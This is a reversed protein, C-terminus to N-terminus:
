LDFEIKFTTGENENSQISIKGGLSEVQTKVMFLGMGKGKSGVHFQKYLGFVQDGWKKLDIGLGNDKFILELKNEIRRSSIEIVCQISPQRYKVSNIILNYFISHMYAKLTLFENIESFDGKVEIDDKDVLNEVTIKIVALLESFIITEKTNGIEGKVELISNLDSVVDDLRKVSEIIGRNLTEKDGISLADDNLADSAGIINAVPARLNHSIIYAFQELAENRLILDDVLKVREIEALKSSTIDAIMALSGKYIGTENFLPNSSVSTWIEKGTKSIYKFEHQDSYGNRKKQMLEAGTKRGEGDMFFYIDKGAMEEKSYELIECIKDNVFTTKNEEDIMWIGEQATEVIQRYRQESENIKKGALVQETVNIAFFLIGDINGENDRHAQYIFNLYTDTLEGTGHFDFQLLMENASFTEGTKYVADLFEFIGQQALEPLVEIVKKGIINDRDILKLYLPNAMEFVHDPGKLIGMCCPAQLYLDNFRQREIEVIKELKKKDTADKGICYTLKDEDDWKASWLMPVINGNKHKFRNEFMTVPMGSKIKEETNVSYQLDEDLVLDIYKRGVLEEPKYGWTAEAAASVTIFRGEEDISCIIDLSSNMIKTLDNLTARLKTATIDLKRAAQKRESIDRIVMSTRKYGEEDTFMASTLEAQFKSGDKRILVIEGKARGTRQREEILLQLQPDTVDALGFRGADCIESETMKFMACAAPNAEIIEGDTVTLLIADMSNTFLSRFKSESEKLLQEAKKRKTINQHSIVIMHEGGSFKVAQMAFWRQEAPSHCPYELYFLAKRGEIVDNMGLLAEAATAEGSQAAKKCINFYNSGVGTKHLTSEGNEMAFRTWSDNVAVINGLDDIVAINASLSNLVGSIFTEINSLHLKAEKSLTVDQATGILRFPNGTSDRELVAAAKIFHTSGDVWVTKYETVIESDHNLVHSFEHIVKAKDEPHIFQMLEEYDGSFGAPTLGHHQLLLNDAIFKKQTFFYEWIGIGAVKTILALKNSLIIETEKNTM